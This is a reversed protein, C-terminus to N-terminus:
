KAPDDPVTDGYAQAVVTRMAAILRTPGIRHHLVDDFKGPIQAWWQGAWPTVEPDDGCYGTDIRREDMIPGGQAYDEHPDFTQNWPHPHDEHTGASYSVWCRGDPWIKANMGEARAVWLALQAGELESTKM